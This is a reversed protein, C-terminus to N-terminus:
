GHALDHPEPRCAHVDALDERVPEAPQRELLVLLLRHVREVEQAVEDFPLNSVALFCVGSKTSSSSSITRRRRHRLLLGMTRPGSLELRGLIKRMMASPTALSDIFLSSAQLLRSALTMRWTCTPRLQRYSIWFSISLMKSM